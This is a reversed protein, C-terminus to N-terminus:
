TTFTQWNASSSGFETQREGFAPEHCDPLNPLYRLYPLHASPKSPPPVEHFMVFIINPFFRSRKLGFLQPSEIVGRSLRSWIM